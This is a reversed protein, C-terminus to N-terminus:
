YITVQTHDPEPWPKSRENLLLWGEGDEESESSSSIRTAMDTASVMKVQASRVVHTPDRSTLNHDGAANLNDPVAPHPPATHNVSPQSSSKHNSLALQSTMPPPHASKTLPLCVSNTHKLGPRRPAPPPPPRIPIPQSLDLSLNQRPKKECQFSM